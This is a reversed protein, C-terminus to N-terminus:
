PGVEADLRGLNGLFFGGIRKLACAELRELYEKLVQAGLHPYYLDIKHVQLFYVLLLLFVIQQRIQLIV